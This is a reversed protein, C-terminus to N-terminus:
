QMAMTTQKVGSHLAALAFEPADEQAERTSPPGVTREM